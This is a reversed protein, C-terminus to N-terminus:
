VALGDRVKLWSVGDSYALQAGGSADSVFALGGAGITTADPLNAITSPELRMQGDVDFKATPARGIGVNKEADIYLAKDMNTAGAFEIYLPAGRSVGSSDYCLFRFAQAGLSAGYQFRTTGNFRYRVFSSNAAAHNNDITVTLNSFADSRTITRRAIVDGAINVEEAFSVKASSKDVSMAENWLAGDPSVKISFDDSGNTGMEARGSWDTQFLLSSTDIETNKNVKIQHGAGDHTLLIADSSVALKNAADSTANVGVGGLNQFDDPQLDALMSDWQTGDFVAMSDESSVYARWGALPAFFMWANQLYVAVAGDQGVWDGTALSAVIHREGDVPAAPAATQDRSTVSLQVLVDLALLAENHTVHKQAQSPQIYPLALISSNDSM